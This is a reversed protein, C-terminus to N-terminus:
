LAAHVYQFFFNNLKVHVRETGLNESPHISPLSHLGLDSQKDPDVSNAMGDAGKPCM